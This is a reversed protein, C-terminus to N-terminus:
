FINRLVVPDGVEIGHEAAFGANVELVQEVKVRPSYFVPKAPDFENSVNRSIDAVVGDHVWIIDIPFNMDPMWFRYIDPVSFIFLMGEDEELRTRGSLGKRVAATTTAVDVRIRTGHISVSPTPKETVVPIPSTAAKPLLSLNGELNKAFGLYLLLAIALILFLIPGTHLTRKM